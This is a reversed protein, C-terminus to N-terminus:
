ASFLFALRLSISGATRLHHPTSNYYKGNGTQSICAVRVFFQGTKVCSFFDFSFSLSATTGERSFRADLVVVLVLLLLMLLIFPEYM